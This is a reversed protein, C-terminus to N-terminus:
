RCDVALRELSCGLGAGASPRAAKKRAPAFGIAVVDEGVRLSSAPWREVQQELRARVVGRASRTM